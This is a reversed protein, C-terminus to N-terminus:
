CCLGSWGGCGVAREIHVLNNYGGIVYRHHCHRRYRRPGRLVVQRMMQKNNM